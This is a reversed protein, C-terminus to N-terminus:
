DTPLFYSWGVVYGDGSSSLFINETPHHALGLVTNTHVKATFMNTNKEFNWACITEDKSGSFLIKNNPSSRCCTVFDSHEEITRVFTAGKLTLKWMKILKDSSTTFLEGNKTLEMSLIMENHAQFQYIEDMNPDFVIVIGNSFGVAFYADGPGAVISSVPGDRSAPADPELTGNQLKKIPAMTKMDWVCLIGDSGGSILKSSDKTFLLSSVNRVHEELIHTLTRSALNFIGISAPAIAVAIMSGDPSFKLDRSHFDVRPINPSIEVSCLVQGSSTDVIHLNRSSSFAFLKGTPDFQVTCIVSKVDILYRMVVTSNNFFSNKSEIKYQLDPPPLSNQNAQQNQNQMQLQLQNQSIAALSSSDGLQTAWNSAQQNSSLSYAPNMDKLKQVASNLQQRYSYIYQLDDTFQANLIKSQANFNQFESIENKLKLILDTYHKILETMRSYNPTTRSMGFGTEIPFEERKFM